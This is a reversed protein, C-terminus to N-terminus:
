NGFVVWNFNLERQVIDNNVKDIISKRHAVGCMFIATDFKNNNCYSYMNQLMSNEYADIYDIAAINERSDNLLSNEFSRMEEQLITSEESNLFQFGQESALSNYKDLLKKFEPSEVVLNYKNEFANSMGIDLLPVYDFENYLGYQQIARVELKKHYQEFSSFLKKHYESYTEELAELFIVEPKLQAIIKCLEDSNCKGMETHVTSVFIIKYM